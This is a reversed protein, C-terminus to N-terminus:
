KKAKKLKVSQFRLPNMSATEINLKGSDELALEAGVIITGEGPKGDTPMVFEIITLGYDLTRANFTLERMSIPRDTALIIQRGEETQIARAYKLDYAVSGPLRVWGVREKDDRMASVM